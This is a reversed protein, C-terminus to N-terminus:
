LDEITLRYRHGSITIDANTPGGMRHDITWAPAIGQEEIASALAHLAMLLIFVRDGLMPRIAEGRPAGAYLAEPPETVSGHPLVHVPEGRMQSSWGPPPTGSM